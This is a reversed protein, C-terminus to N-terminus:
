QGIIEWCSDFAVEKLSAFPHRCTVDDFFELEAIVTDEAGFVALGAREVVERKRVCRPSDNMMTEKRGLLEQAKIIGKAAVRYRLEAFAFAAALGSAPAKSALSLHKAAM